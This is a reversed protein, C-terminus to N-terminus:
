PRPGRVRVEERAEALAARMAEIPARRGWWRLFAAAGQGVLMEGGDAAVLGLTRAEKVWATEDPRYVLDLLAPGGQLGRPDIPLPDDPRLGLRTANVVVDFALDSSADEEIAHARGRGLAAALERARAPTRNHIWVGEAGDAVLAALTARAAGGAGLLLVRAGQAERGLLAEWAGRFGDVDTNDGAVRGGELWFTNCAGTRTVADTPVDVVGAAREKHPLTVNGGGGARALGRLLGPLDGEGCRLAVFVADLGAARIAANQIRPSLSHGVPDGVVALLRTAPSVEGNM